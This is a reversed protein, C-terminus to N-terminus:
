QLAKQQISRILKQLEKEAETLQSILTPGVSWGRHKETETLLDIVAKKLQPLSEEGMETRNQHYKRSSRWVHRLVELVVGAHEMEKPDVIPAFGGNAAGVIAVQNSSVKKLCDRADQNSLNCSGYTLAEALIKEDASRAKTREMRGITGIIGEGRQEELYSDRQAENRLSLELIKGQSGEIYTVGVIPVAPGAEAGGLGAAGDLAAHARKNILTSFAAEKKYKNSDWGM